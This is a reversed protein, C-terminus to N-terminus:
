ETQRDKAVSVVAALADDAVVDAATIRTHPICRRNGARDATAFADPQVPRRAVAGATKAVSLGLTRWYRGYGSKGGRQEKGGCM